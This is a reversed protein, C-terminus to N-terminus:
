YQEAELVIVNAKFSPECLFRACGSHFNGDNDDVIPVNTLKEILQARNRSWGYQM